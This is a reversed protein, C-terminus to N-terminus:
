GINLQKPRVRIFATYGDPHYKYRSVGWSSDIGPRGTVGGVFEGQIVLFEVGEPFNRSLWKMMEEDSQGDFRLTNSYYTWDNPDYGHDKLLQQRAEKVPAKTRNFERRNLEEVQAVAQEPSMHPNITRILDLRDKFEPIKM